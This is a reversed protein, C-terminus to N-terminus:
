TFSLSCPNSTYRTKSLYRSKQIFLAVLASRPFYKLHVTSGFCSSMSLTWLVSLLLQNGENNFIKCWIYCNWLCSSAACVVLWQLAQNVRSTESPVLIWRCSMRFPWSSASLILHDANCVEFPTLIRESSVSTNTRTNYWKLCCCTFTWTMFLDGTWSMFTVVFAYSFISDSRGATLAKDPQQCLLMMEVFQLPVSMLTNFEWFHGTLWM